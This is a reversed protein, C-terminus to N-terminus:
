GCQKTPPMGFWCRLTTKVINLVLKDLIPLLHPLYNICGGNKTKILHGLEMQPYQKPLPNITITVPHVSINNEGDIKESRAQSAKEMIQEALNAKVGDTLEKVFPNRSYASVCRDVAAEM